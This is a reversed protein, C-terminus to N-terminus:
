GKFINSLHQYYQTRAKTFNVNLFRISTKFPEFKALLVACAASYIIVGFIVDSLSAPINL